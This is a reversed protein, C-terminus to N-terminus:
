LCFEIHFLCKLMECWPITYMVGPACFFCATNYPLPVGIPTPSPHLFTCKGVSHRSTYTRRNAKQPNLPFDLSAISVTNHPHCPITLVTVKVGPSMTNIIAFTSAGLSTRVKNSGQPGLENTCRWMPAEMWIVDGCVQNWEGVSQVSGIDQLLVLAYWSWVLCCTM